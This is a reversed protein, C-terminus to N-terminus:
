YPLVDEWKLQVLNYYLNVKTSIVGNLTVHFIYRFPICCRNTFNDNRM